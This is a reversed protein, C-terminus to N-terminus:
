LQGRARYYNNSAETYNYKSESRDHAERQSIDSSILLSIELLEHYLLMMDHMEICKGDTLRRWSEAIEYCPYLRSVGYALIHSDNFIYNKIIQIRELSFNTNKSIRYCDNRHRIQDYMQNAHEQARSSQTNLGGSCYM